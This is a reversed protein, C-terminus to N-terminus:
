AIDRASGLKLLSGASGPKRTEPLSWGPTKLGGGRPDGPSKDRRTDMRKRLYSQRERVLASAENLRFGLHVNTKTEICVFHWSAYDIQIRSFSAFLATITLLLSEGCLEAGNLACQSPAAAVRLAGIDSM